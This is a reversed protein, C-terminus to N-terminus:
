KFEFLHSFNFILYYFRSKAFEFTRRLRSMPCDPLVAVAVGAFVVVVRIQSTVAVVVCIFKFRKYVALCIKRAM